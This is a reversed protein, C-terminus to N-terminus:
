HSDEGKGITFGIAFMKIEYQNLLMSIVSIPIASRAELKAVAGFTSLGLLGTQGFKGFLFQL